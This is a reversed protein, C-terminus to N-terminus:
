PAPLVFFACSCFVEYGMNVHCGLSAFPVFVLSSWEVSFRTSYIDPLSSVRGSNIEKNTLFLTIPPQLSSEATSLMCQEQLSDLKTGLVCTKHKVVMQLELERGGDVSVLPFTGGEKGAGRSHWWIYICM